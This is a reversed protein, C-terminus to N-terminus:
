TDTRSTRARSSKNRWGEYSHVLLNSRVGDFGHVLYDAIEQAKEVLIPYQKDSLEYASIFGGIYRITTEFLSFLLLRAHTLLAKSCTKAHVSRVSDGTKSSSFDIYETFNLAEQFWDQGLSYTV